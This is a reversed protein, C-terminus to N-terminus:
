MGYLNKLKLLLIELDVSNWQLENFIKEFVLLQKQAKKKGKLLLVHPEIMNMNELAGLFLCTLGYSLFQSRDNCYMDFPTQMKLFRDKLATSQSSSFRIPERNTLTCFVSVRHKYLSKMKCQRLARDVDEISINESTNILNVGNNSICDLLRRTDEAKVTVHDLCQLQQLKLLFFTLRKKVPNGFSVEHNYSCHKSLAHNIEKMLGCSECFYVNLIDDYKLIMKCTMCDYIFDKPEQIYSFSGLHRPNLIFGTMFSKTKRVIVDRQIKRKNKNLLECDYLVDNHSYICTPKNNTYDLLLKKYEIQNNMQKFICWFIVGISKRILSGIILTVIFVLGL